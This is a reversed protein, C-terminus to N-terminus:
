DCRMDEREYIVTLETKFKEKVKNEFRYTAVTSNFTDEPFRHRHTYILNPSFLAAASLHGTFDYRDKIQNLLVDFYEELFARNTDSADDLRPRKSASAELDGSAEEGLLDIKRDMVEIIQAEFKELCTQIYSSSAERSEVQSFLVEVHPIVHNLVELFYNFDVSRLITLLGNV